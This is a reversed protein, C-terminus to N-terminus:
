ALKKSDAGNKASEPLTKIQRPGFPRTRGYGLNVYEPKSRKPRCELIPPLRMLAFIM